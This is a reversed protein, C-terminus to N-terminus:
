AAPATEADAAYVFSDAFFEDEPLKRTAVFSARASDVMAPAGCVYVQYGSLDSFDALVAEHVLGTRGQWRDDPQPNSLVPVFSFNPHEAQWQLALEAMYLDKLARVGWYLVMERDMRAAFAHELMAKAPAFGTGGAVFIMPKDSDERIFFSGLPGKLRLIDREKLTSFVHSSFLGGPVHRIHLELLADDHPPNALSYSRARGDKLLIDIYQGALFQLRESAPLKIKMVMVDDTRKELREVRCPLTKVVIDRAAGIERAEITLDSLPKARCFLALGRTKEADKLANPSHAGHDVDGALVKGKCTGCAGNRCGYPLAFGERLAAELITEDDEVIFQHGSPELTVQYSM